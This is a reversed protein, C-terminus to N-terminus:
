GTDSRDSQRWLAQRERGAVWFARAARALTLLADALWAGRYAIYWRVIQSAPAPQANHADVFMTRDLQILRQSQRDYLISGPGFRRPMPQSLQVLSVAQLVGVAVLPMWALARLWRRRRRQGDTLAVTPESRTLLWVGMGLVVVPGLALLVRDAFYGFRLGGAPVGGCRGVAADAFAAAGAGGAGGGGAPDDVAGGVRM